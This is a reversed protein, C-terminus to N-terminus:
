WKQVVGAAASLGKQSYKPVFLGRHVQRSIEAWKREAKSEHYVAMKLEDRVNDAQIRTAHGRAIAEIKIAAAEEASAGTAM